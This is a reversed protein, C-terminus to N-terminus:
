KEVLRELAKSVAKATGLKLFDEVFFLAGGKAKKIKTIVKDEISKM